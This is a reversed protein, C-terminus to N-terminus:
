TVVDGVHPPSEVGRLLASVLERVALLVQQHHGVEQAPEKLEVEVEDVFDLALESRSISGPRPLGRPSRATLGFSPLLATACGLLHVRGQGRRTGKPTFRAVPGNFSRREGRQRTRRPAGCVRM